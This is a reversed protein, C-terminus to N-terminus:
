PWLQEDPPLDDYDEEVTAEDGDEEAFVTALWDSGPSLVQTLPMCGLAQTLSGRVGGEVILQNAEKSRCSTTSGTSLGMAAGVMTATTMLAAATFQQVPKL